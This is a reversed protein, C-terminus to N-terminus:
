NLGITHLTETKISPFVLEKRLVINNVKMIVYDKKYEAWEWVKNPNSLKNQFRAITTHIIHNKKTTESPFPLLQFFNNRLNELEDHEDTACWVIGSTTAIVKSFTINFSEYKKHLSSFVEIFQSSVNNWTNENGLAYNDDWFIVQNVSVHQFERPLLLVNDDELTRLEKQYACVRDRVQESLDVQLTVGWVPKGWTTDIEIQNNIFKEKNTKEINRYLNLLRQNM